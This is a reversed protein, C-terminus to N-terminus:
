HENRLSLVTSADIGFRPAARRIENTAYDPALHGYHAEVMRTDRHGLNRAVLLLPMGNMVAHSAWTHRLIHFGVNPKIQARECAAKMLRIQWSTRWSQGDARVFLFERNHAHALARAFFRAGDENVIIHRTKRSKDLHVAITGADRNFDHPKLRCLESWRAGSHLGAEVMYGFDDGDNAAKLLRRCQDLQLYRARSATVGKFPRVRRWAQDTAVRHRRWAMNLAAKLIGFVRNAASRRARKVEPDAMDVDRHRARKGTKTRLRPQAKALAHLWDGLQKATLHDLRLRGLKPRIHTRAKARADAINKEGRGEGELWVFYDDLANDVTCPGATPEPLGNAARTAIEVRRRAERQAQSFSLVKIGDAEARDDATGLSETRYKRNGAYLSASWVGGLPGKRYLLVLGPDLPRRYYGHQKRLRDRGTRTELSSDRLLRPM